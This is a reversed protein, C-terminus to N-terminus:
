PGKSGSWSFLDFSMQYTEEQKAGQVLEESRKLLDLFESKIKDRVRETASFTVSFSYDDRRARRSLRELCLIKLQNRWPKFAPSSRPLHISKILTRIKGAHQEVIGLNELREIVERLEAVQMDLDAALKAPDNQYRPISLCIHVIQNFPDVYYDRLSQDSLSDPKAKIHERSDLAQDRITQIERLLTERRKPITSREQELLLMMYRVQRETFGLFECVAFLQDASFHAKGTTVKSIYSKPIRTAEAIVQFTFASDIGKREEVVRRLISQYSSETFINM